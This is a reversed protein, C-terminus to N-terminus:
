GYYNLAGARDTLEEEKVERVTRKLVDGWSRKELDTPREPARGTSTDHDMRVPEERPPEQRPPEQPSGSREQQILERWTTQWQEDDVPM